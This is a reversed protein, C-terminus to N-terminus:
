FFYITKIHKVGLILECLTLYAVHITILLLLSRDLLLQRNGLSLQFMFCYRLSSQWATQTVPHGWEFM